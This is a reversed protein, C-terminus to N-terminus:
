AANGILPQIVGTDNVYHSKFDTTYFNTDVPLHLNDFRYNTQAANYIYFNNKADLIEKARKYYYAYKAAIKDQARVLMALFWAPDSDIKRLIDDHARDQVQHNEYRTITAMGWGLIESFDKQSIAYKERIAKIEGSTLLGVRKRYADKQALSNIRMMEETEYYEGSNACYEYVANFTVREGKFTGAEEINVTQVEHEEMCSICQKFETKITEM